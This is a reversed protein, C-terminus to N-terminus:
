PLSSSSSIKESAVSQDENEVNNGNNGNDGVDVTDVDICTHMFMRSRRGFRASDYCQEKEGRQVNIPGDNTISGNDM